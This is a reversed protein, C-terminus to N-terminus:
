RKCGEACLLLQLEGLTIDPASKIIAKLKKDYSFLLPKRYDGQRKPATSGENQKLKKWRYIVRESVGYQASVKYWDM